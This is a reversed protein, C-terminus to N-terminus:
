FRKAAKNAAFLIKDCFLIYNFVNRLLERAVFVRADTRREVLNDFEPAYLGTFTESKCCMHFRAFARKSIVILRLGFWGRLAPSYSYSVVGGYKVVFLNRGSFPVGSFIGGCYVLYARILIIVVNHYCPARINNVPQFYSVYFGFVASYVIRIINIGCLPPKVHFEKLTLKKGKIQKGKVAVLELFVPIVHAPKWQVGYM